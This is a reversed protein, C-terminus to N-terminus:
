FKLTLGSGRLADKVGVDAAARTFNRDFNSAVVQTVVEIM